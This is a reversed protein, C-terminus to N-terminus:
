WAPFVGEPVMLSRNMLWNYILKQCMVSRNVKVMIARIKDRTSPLVSSAFADYQM